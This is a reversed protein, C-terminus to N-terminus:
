DIVKTEGAVRELRHVTAGAKELARALVQAHTTVLVQGRKSASIIQRALPELLEPHLSTEPENLALLPPPRPSHLVALLCLYRLTGDSLETAELPRLLGPQHVQLRLRTEPLVEVRAGQFADAIAADLAKEDGIERITQIASVLDRGDQALVPTRTAVYPHRSAADPGTPFSHYFRWASFTQRLSSLLPYRHADAVQFLVSEFSSLPGPLTARKGEADRASAHPGNRELAAHRRAGDRVWLTESKVDPDLKFFSRDDPGSPQPGCSLEFELEDLAVRVTMRVPEKSRRPGAFVVGPIGGEEALLRAFTGQAAAQLLVLARYLNTKGVGNGGEVVTLEGLDVRLSRISRYGSVELSQLM